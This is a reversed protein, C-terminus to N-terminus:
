RHKGARRSGNSLADGAKKPCSRNRGCGPLAWNGGASARRTSSKMALCHSIALLAVAQEALVNQLELWDTVAAAVDKLNARLTRVLERRIRADTRELEIYIVSERNVDGNTQGNIEVLQGAADRRVAVVPHILREVTLGFGAITACVSDVLFPMDDNVIALRLHRDNQAGSVSELSLNAKGEEREVACRLTFRAAEECAAQDFGINEGPLASERFAAVLEMELSEVDKTTQTSNKERDVAM